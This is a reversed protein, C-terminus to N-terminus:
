TRSRQLRRTRLAYAAAALALVFLALGVIVYLNGAFEQLGRYHYEVYKPNDGSSFTSIPAYWILGGQLLGAGGGPWFRPWAGYGALVAATV